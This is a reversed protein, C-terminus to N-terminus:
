YFCSLIFFFLKVREDTLSDQIKLLEECVIWYTKMENEDCKNLEGFTIDFLKKSFDQDEQAYFSLLKAVPVFVIKKRTFKMIKKLFEDNVFYEELEKKEYENNLVLDSCVLMFYNFDKIQKELSVKQFNNNVGNMRNSTCNNKTNVMIPKLECKMLYDNLQFTSIIQSFPEEMIFEKFLTLIKLEKLYKRSNVSIKALFHLVRFIHDLPQKTEFIISISASIFTPLTSNVKFDEYCQSDDKELIKYLAVRVIGIFIYRMDEVYCDILFEKLIELFSIQCIFWTTLEYSKNLLEKVLKLNRPLRDRDKSRLGVILLNYLIMKSLEFSNSNFEPMKLFDNGIQYFFLEFGNDLLIKNIHFKLNDAKIFELSDSNQTETYEETNLISDIENGNDDYIKNRQYFLLYANHSKERMSQSYEMMSKDEGGFAEFALDIIDFKKIATDNFEFWETQKKSPDKILSYYHGSDSTGMHIVVGKLNYNYYDVPFPYDGEPDKLYSQTYTTM